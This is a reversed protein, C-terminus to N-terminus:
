LTFDSAWVAVGMCAQGVGLTESFMVHKWTVFRIQSIVKRFRDRLALNCKLESM